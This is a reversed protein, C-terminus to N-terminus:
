LYSYHESVQEKIYSDDLSYSLMEEAIDAPFMKRISDAYESGDKPIEYSDVEDNVFKFKYAMSSGSGSKLEGNDVYYAEELIWMYAYKAGKEEVIGFYDYDFFIHFDQMNNEPDEKTYKERLYEIAVEYLYDYNPDTETTSSEVTNEKEKKYFDIGIKVGFIILLVILVITIGKKM